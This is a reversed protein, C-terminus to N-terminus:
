VDAKNLLNYPPAFSNHLHNIMQLFVRGVKGQWSYLHLRQKEPPPSFSPWGMREGGQCPEVDVKHVLNDCRSFSNHM